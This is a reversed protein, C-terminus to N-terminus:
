SLETTIGLESLFPNRLRERGLTSVPGHGPVFTVDDGLVLLKNQISDMLQPYSGGQFDTNGISDKFLVDGVFALKNEPQYFIVHGPTHGPCHLVSFAIEGVLETQGESLWQDPLFAALQPLGFLECEEPLLDLWYKDAKHPGIIPVSFQDALEVAAGVHDIHGHTLLIKSLKAGSKELARILQKSDGGPDVFAAENSQLCHILSCNQEFDTVPIITYKMDPLIRKM